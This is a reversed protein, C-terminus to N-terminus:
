SRRCRCRSRCGRRHGASINGAIPGEGCFSCLDAILVLLLTLLLGLQSSPPICFISNLCSLIRERVMTVIMTAAAIGSMSSTPHVATNPAVLVPCSAHVVRPLLSLRLGVKQSSAHAMVIAGNINRRRPSRRDADCRRGAQRVRGMIRCPPAAGAHSAVSAKAVFGSFFSM